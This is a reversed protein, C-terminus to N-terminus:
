LESLDAYVLYDVIKQQEITLQTAFNASHKSGDLRVYDVSGNCWLANSSQSIKDIRHSMSHISSFFQRNADLVAVKNDILPYNGIRFRVKDGIVQELYNLDKNDVATYLDSIFQEAQRNNM